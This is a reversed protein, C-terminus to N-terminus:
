STQKMNKVDSLTDIDVFEKANSVQVATCGYRRILERGGEDGQLALLEPMLDACFLAPNGPIEGYFLRAIKTEPQASALLREVSASQLYPQDAVAFLLFDDPELHTLSRIGAQITYSLGLGSNPSDVVAVGADKAAQFIQPYQTVVTLTCDKRKRVLELLLDFGHRYLPKGNLEMLLKNAGFRRSSGAALYLIHKNM